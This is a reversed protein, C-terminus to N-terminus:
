GPLKTTLKLCVFVVLLLGLGPLFYSVPNQTLLFLSTSHIQSVVIGVTLAYLYKRDIINEGELWNILPIFALLHVYEYQYALSPILVMFPLCLVSLVAVNYNAISHVSCCSARWLLCFLIFYLGYGIFTITQMGVFVTKTFVYGPFVIIAILSNILSGNEQITFISQRMLIKDIFNPWLNFTLLFLFVIFFCTVLALRWRRSALIPFLILIPYFKLHFAVALAVGAVIENKWTSGLTSYFVGLALFFFVLGDINGRQLLFYIPHSFLATVIMLFLTDKWKDKLPFSLTYFFLGGVIFLINITFFIDIALKPPFGSLPMMIIASLPPTVFREWDWPNRGEFLYRAAWHYDRFDFGFKDQLRVLVIPEGKITFSFILVAFSIALALPVIIALSVERKNNM